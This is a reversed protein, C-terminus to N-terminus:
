AITDDDCAIMRPQSRRRATCRERRRRQTERKLAIFWSEVLTDLLETAFQALRVSRALGMACFNPNEVDRIDGVLDCYSRPELMFFTPQPAFTVRKQLDLSFESPMEAQMVVSVPSCVDSDKRCSREGPEKAIM